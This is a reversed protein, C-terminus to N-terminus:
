TSYIFYTDSIQWMDQGGAVYGQVIQKDTSCIGALRIKILAGDDDKCLEPIPVDVLELSSDKDIFRLAKM